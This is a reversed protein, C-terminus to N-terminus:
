ILNSTTSKGNPKEVKDCNKYMSTYKSLINSKGNPEECPLNLALYEICIRVKLNIKDMCM